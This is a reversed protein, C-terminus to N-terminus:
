VHIKQKHKNFLEAFLIVFFYTNTFLYRKFLRKPELILRYIWELGLKQLWIPTPKRTKILIEFANGIGFYVKPVRKKMEHIFREQKPCGLIVFILKAKSLRIKEAILDLDYDAIEGIPPSFTDVDIKTSISNVFYDKVLKLKDESSGLFFLAENNMIAYTIMQNMVQYGTLRDIKKRHFFHFSWKIPMGDVLLYEAQQLVSNFSKDTKSEVLMHVNCLYVATPVSIVLRDHIENQFEGITGTFYNLDFLIM